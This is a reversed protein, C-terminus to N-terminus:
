LSDFAVQCGERVPWSGFAKLLDERAIQLKPEPHKLLHWALLLPGSLCM